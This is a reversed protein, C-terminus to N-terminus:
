PLLRAAVDLGLVSLGHARFDWFAFPTEEFPVFRDSLFVWCSLLDSFDPHGWSICFFVLLVCLPVLPLSSLFFWHRDRKTFGPPSIWPLPRSVVLSLSVDM